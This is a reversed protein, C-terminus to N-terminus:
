QYSMLAWLADMTEALPVDRLFVTVQEDAAGDSADAAVAVSTKAALRELLDGLYIRSSTLTVRQELRPDEQRMAPIPSACRGQPAALLLLLAVVAWLPESRTMMM